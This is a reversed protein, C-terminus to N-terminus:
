VASALNIELQTKSRRVEERCLRVVDKYDNRTVLGKKWFSYVRRKERLQLWLVRNLWPPRIQQQSRKYCRPVAQEQAM